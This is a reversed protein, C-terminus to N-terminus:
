FFFGTRLTFYNEDSFGYSATWIFKNLLQVYIGPGYGQQLEGSDGELDWVQGIDFFGLFGVSGSFLDDRMTFAAIRIENNNYFSTQGAFRTRRFGRLNTLGGLFSSQYFYFDGDNSDVGVRSAFTIRLPLNPTMYASLNASYRFFNAYDHTLDKNWSARAQFVIGKEPRVVRDQLNLNFSLGIEGMSTSRTDNMEKEPLTSLISNDKQEGQINFHSYDMFLGLTMIRSLRRQFTPTFHFSELGVRYYDISQNNETDNGFGFYNFVFNPGNYSVDLRLDNKDGLLSYYIANLDSSIAGTHTAYAMRASIQYRVPYKRFGPKRFVIGGEILFGDDDNFQLSFLPGVYETYDTQADVGYSGPQPSYHVKTDNNIKMFPENELQEYIHVQEGWLGVKSSVLITDADLGGLVRILIGTDVDGTLHFSDNGEMGYLRVEKTLKNKFIRSYLTHQEGEEKKMKIVRVQTEENNLRIVEFYEHKNSGVVSVIKSIEEYFQEAYNKLDERRKKIKRAIEEGSFAHIEEPLRLMASDIVQNTLGEQIEQVANEWQEWTLSPLIRNDLLRASLNLGKVDRITDEFHSLNRLAWKRSLLWPIVGDYRAFVQDRDRPVPRFVSGKEKEYEAWRWQDNHRDWDGILMDFLRAKLYMEADVENDNDKRLHERMTYTSVINKAHGFRSYGRLDEDPRIEIMGLRGGFDNMYPGLTPTVPTYFLQPNTHYIGISEAMPPIVLAGYPHGTSSQDEIFNNIWTNRLAEPLAESPFKEISRLVFQTEEENEFHITITQKGGGKSLPRIGGEYTKLDIYPVTVPTIWEKRYHSGLFFRGMSSKAYEPNAAITRTSDSYDPIDIEEILEASDLAYLPTRFSLKGVPDDNDIVFFEVWAQGDRYYLVRGYGIRQHVYAAGFGKVAYNLKSASGSIIHHMLGQRNLQLNHDHGTAYVVNPENEIISLLAAKYRQFETNPIDQPTVGAKRLLPYLSGIVPLPIYLNDRVLRLPFIHDMINYHGGHNGNSIIPHHAVIMIHKGSNRRVADELQIMMDVKDEVTCGNEPARPVYYPHVWWETNLAIIVLSENVQIVDPGACGNDPRFVNAGNFYEEVFDEQRLAYELGDDGSYDWDHNGPIFIVNGEYGAAADMQAIIVEEKEERDDADEPPLGNYYINDGLFVLSSSSDPESLLHANLSKIINDDKSMAGGDGVLYITHIVETSDPLKHSEWNRYDKGYYPKITNCSPSLILVLLSLPIVWRLSTLMHNTKDLKTRAFIMFILFHIDM